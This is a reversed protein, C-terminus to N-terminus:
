ADSPIQRSRVRDWATEAKAVIRDVPWRRNPLRRAWLYGFVAGTLTGLLHAINASLGPSPLLLLLVTFLAAIPAIRWRGPLFMLAAALAGLAAASSGTDPRDLVRYAQHFGLHALPWAVLITLPASIWDSLFFTLAARVSGAISEILALGVVTLIALKEGIGPSSQIVTSAPLTWLQWNLVKTLDLGTNDILLRHDVHSTGATVYAISLILVSIAITAPFTVLIWRLPRTVLSTIQSMIQGNLLATGFVQDGGITLVCRLHSQTSTM